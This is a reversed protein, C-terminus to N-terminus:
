IWLYKTIYTYRNYVNHIECHKPIIQYNNKKEYSNTGHNFIEEMAITITRYIFYCAAITVITGYVERKTLFNLVVKLFNIM